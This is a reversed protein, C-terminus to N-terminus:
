GERKKRKEWGMMRMRKVQKKEQTGEVWVWPRVLGVV